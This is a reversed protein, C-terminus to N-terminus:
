RGKLLNSLRYPNDPVLIQDGFQIHHETPTNNFMAIIWWYRSDGYYTHALRYFSDGRTWTHADFDISGLMEDTLKNFKPSSYINVSNLKRLTKIQKFM